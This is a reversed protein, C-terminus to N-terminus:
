LVYQVLIFKSAGEESANSDSDWWQRVDGEEEEVLPGDSRECMQDSEMVM